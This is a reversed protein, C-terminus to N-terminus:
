DITDTDQDPCLALDQEVQTLFQQSRLKAKCGKVISQQCLSLMWLVQEHQTGRVFRSWRWGVGVGIWSAINLLVLVLLEVVVHIYKYM